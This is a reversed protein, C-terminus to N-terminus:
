SYMGHCTPSFPLSDIITFYEQMYSSNLHSNMSCSVQLLSWLNLGVGQSHLYPHPFLFLNTWSTLLNEPPYWQPLYNVRNKLPSSPSHINKITETRAQKQWTILKDNIWHVFVINFLTEQILYDASTRCQCHNKIVGWSNTNSIM